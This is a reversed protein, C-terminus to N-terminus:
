ITESEENEEPQITEGGVIVRLASPNTSIPTVDSNNEGAEMEDDPIADEIVYDPIPQDTPKPYYMRKLWVVDRTLYIYHNILEYMRYCDGDHEDAYGVMIYITGKNKLKAETKSKTKVIGAKGWTKLYSAFKPIKYGFHEYRTQSKGNITTVVLGDLKTATKM